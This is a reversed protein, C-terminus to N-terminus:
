SAVVRHERAAAVLGDFLRVDGPEEPHWQVGVVFDHGELEAAEVVGDESRATVRLGTGLRDVAQHHHCVVDVREGCWRRVQSDPETRVVLPGFTGPERLHADSGTRDPLHQVLDGGLAVNLVQMGRCVALLPVGQEVARRVLGLELGDRDASTGATRAHAAQGYRDPAMDGGGVLVLGDLMRCIDDLPDAGEGDVASGFDDSGTASSPPVLVPQGGARTVVDLYTGPVFAADRQWPGWAVADRYTTLGIIPRSPARDAM